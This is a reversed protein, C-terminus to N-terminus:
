ETPVTQANEGEKTLDTIPVADALAQNERALRRVNSDWDSGNIRVAAAERTTIGAEIASLEANIEKTPDLQGASPGIWECATYARRILPDAFFGPASIRGSAVAETLFLEWVPQCFDSVLWSRRMKFGKWAEVLAARSASYSSNFSKLLLDAPIEVAAGIQEAMARMFVDFGANPHAPNAFVVDEGPEMYNITNPGLEYENPDNSVYDGDTGEGGGVENWPNDIPNEVKVFASFSAQVIAADLEAQTYRRTQLLPEIAQALMSVGRYQDPREAEMIHLINPQGTKKGFAQVRTWQLPERYFEQPYGNCIHYAVARGTSDVEVGDYIANGNDPNRGETSSAVPVGMMAPTSVRDAEIVHLRLTYPRMPSAKRHKILAFVDGSMLQSQMILQQLEYFDNLGLADCAIRDEAWLAFERRAADQWADAAADDMRLYERDIRPRPVVGTGVVNTRATRVASTAIPAGMYLARARNRLAYNNDDIDRQASGSSVRFGKLARRTGSAGSDGYGSARVPAATSGHVNPKRKQKSM